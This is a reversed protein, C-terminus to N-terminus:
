NSRSGFTQKILEWQASKPGIDTAWLSAFTNTGMTICDTMYTSYSVLEVSKACYNDYLFSMPSCIGDHIYDLMEIHGPGIDNNKFKLGNEFYQTFFESSDETMLQIFASAATFAEPDASILVGGSNAHDSILAGYNTTSDAEEDEPVYKPFPLIGTATDMGQIQSGELALVMQNLGFFAGGNMFTTAINAKATNRADTAWDYSFYDEKEMAILMDTMDHIPDIESGTRYRPSGDEDRVFVDLGSTSLVCRSVWFRSGLAGMVLDEGQTGTYAYEAIEMFADYTWQGDRVLNYIHELGGHMALVEDAIDANVLIGYSMRFLDIFYDGMLLYFKDEDLTNELMMDYYWHEDSFDFYNKQSQDKCNYLEGLIAARVMGYNGYILMHPADDSDATNYAQVVNLATDVSGNWGIPAYTLNEGMVLGLKDCVRNHREYAALYDSRSLQAEDDPGVLYPYSITAGTSIVDNSIWDNYAIRLTENSLDVDAWKDVTPATTSDGGPATTGAPTTTDGNGGCSALMGLCLVAALILTLIRTATKM